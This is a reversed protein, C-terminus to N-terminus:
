VDYVYDYVEDDDADRFGRYEESPEPYAERIAWVACSPLVRRIKKGLRQHLFSTCQRYAQMRYTRHQYQPQRQIDVRFNLAADLVARNLVVASFDEHDILCQIGDWQGVGKAEAESLDHCCVCERVTTMQRCNTCRCWIFDDLRWEETEVDEGDWYEVSHAELLEPESPPTAPDDDSGGEGSPGPAPPQRRPQFNYAIINEPDFDEREPDMNTTKVKRVRPNSYSNWKVNVYYLERIHHFELCFTPARAKPM